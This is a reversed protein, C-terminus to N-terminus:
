DSQCEIKKCALVDNVTGLLENIDLPKARYRHSGYREANEVAYDLLHNTTSVAIIPIGNTIVSYTLEELLDFGASDGIVLDIIVLDPQLV